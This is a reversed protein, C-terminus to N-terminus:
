LSKDIYYYGSEMIDKFNEVGIPLAKNMVVAEM